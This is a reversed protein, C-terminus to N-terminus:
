KLFWWRRRPADPPPLMRRLDEIHRGREEALMEAAQRRIREAELEARVAALEAADKGPLPSNATSLETKGGQGGKAVEPSRPRYVRMLESRDVQWQGKGDRKGDFEGSIKGDKLAKQLTPRSVEFEKVAERLSLKAVTFVEGQM